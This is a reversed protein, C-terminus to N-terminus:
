FINSLFDWRFIQIIHTSTEPKEPSIEIEPDMAEEFITEVPSSEVAAKRSKVPNSTSKKVPDNEETKSQGQMTSRRTTRQMVATASTSKRGRKKPSPVM